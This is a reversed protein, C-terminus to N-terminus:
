PRDARYRSRRPIPCRGFNELIGSLGQFEHPLPYTFPSMYLTILFIVPETFAMVFPRPLAIRLRTALPIREIEHEAHYRDDNTLQRLQRAKWELLLPGYTEPAFCFTCLFVLGCMLLAVWETWRWTHLVPSQPIWAGMVPGIAPGIFGFLSFMPFMSTKELPTYMDSLSGGACVLPSAGSFGALFRFVVQAGINPALASAMLWVCMSLLSVIYTGNRGLVESFPGCILAGFGFGSLFVAVALTETVESVGLDEAAQPLVAADIPAAAGVMFAISSIILTTYFRRFFSWNRPNMPDDPGDFEVIIVPRGGVVRTKQRSLCPLARADEVDDSELQKKLTQGIRRYQLYTEM